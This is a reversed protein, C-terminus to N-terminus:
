YLPSFFVAVMFSPPSMAVTVKKVAFGCFFPLPRWKRAAFGDFFTAAITRKKKKL